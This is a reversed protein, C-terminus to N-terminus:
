LIADRVDEILGRYHFDDVTVQSAIEQLLFYALNLKDVVDSDQFLEEYTKNVSNVVDEALERMAEKGRQAEEHKRQLEQKAKGAEVDKNSVM